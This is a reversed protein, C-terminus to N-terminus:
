GQTERADDRLHPPIPPMAVIDSRKHWSNSCFQILGDAIIYHCIREERVGLGLGTAKDIAGSWHVFTQEFSPNFTPRTVNGNFVWSKPLTHTAECAPCWHVFGSVTWCMISSVQM